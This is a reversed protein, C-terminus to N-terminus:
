KKASGNKKEKNNNVLTLPNILVRLNKIELVKLDYKNRPTTVLKTFAPMAARVQKQSRYVDRSYITYNDEFTALRGHAMLQYIKM